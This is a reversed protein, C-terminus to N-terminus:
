RRWPPRDRMWPVADDAARPASRRPAKAAAQSRRLWDDAADQAVDPKDDLKQPVGSEVGRQRLFLAPQDRLPAFVRQGGLLRLAPDAAIPFRFAREDIRYSLHSVWFCDASDWRGGCASRPKPPPTSRRSKPASVQRNTQLNGSRPQPSRPPTVTATGDPRYTVTIILKLTM